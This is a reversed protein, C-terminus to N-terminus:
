FSQIQAGTPAGHVIAILNILQNEAENIAEIKPGVSEQSEFGRAIVLEKNLEKDSIVDSIVGSATLSFGGLFALFILLSYKKM